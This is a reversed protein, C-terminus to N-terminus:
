LLRLVAQQRCNGASQSCRHPRCLMGNLERIGSRQTLYGSSVSGAVFKILIISDCFVNRGYVMSDFRANIIGAQPPLPRLRPERGSLTKLRQLTDLSWVKITYDYSGSFLKSGCVSLSLVPRAHDELVHECRRTEIDWMRITKDASASLLRTGAVEVAWVIEDHGQLPLDM